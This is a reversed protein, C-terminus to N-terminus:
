TEMIAQRMNCSDYFDIQITFRAIDYITVVTDNDYHQTATVVCPLFTVCVCLSM